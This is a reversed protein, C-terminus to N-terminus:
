NSTKYYVYFIGNKLTIEDSNNPKFLITMDIKGNGSIVTYDIEKAIGMMEEGLEDTYYSHALYCDLIHLNPDTTKSIELVCSDSAHMSTFNWSLPHTKMYKRLSELLYSNVASETSSPIESKYEKESSDFSIEMETDTEPEPKNDLLRILSDCLEKNKPLPDECHRKLQELIMERLKDARTSGLNDNSHISFLSEQAKRLNNFEMEKNDFQKYIYALQMYYEAKYIGKKIEGFSSYFGEDADISTITNELCSIPNDMPGCSQYGELNPNLKCKTQGFVSLNTFVCFSLMLPLTLARSFYSNTTTTMKLHLILKNNASTHFGLANKLYM